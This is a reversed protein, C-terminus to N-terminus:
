LQSDAASIPFIGDDMPVDLANTLRGALGYVGALLNLDLLEVQPSISRRGRGCRMTSPTTTSRWGM